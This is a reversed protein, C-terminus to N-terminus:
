PWFDALEGSSLLNFHGTTENKKVQCCAKLPDHELFLVSEHRDAYDFLQHKEEMSILPRVDYGMVYATGIHYTSPLLDACFILSHQQWHVVPIMMAETHGYTYKLDLYNRWTQNLEFHPNATVQKLVGAQELPELNEKHFSARERANPTLAWAWQKQSVWYVAKHFTPVLRGNERKVAGGVHDFHLHTILVDTVDGPHYGAQRVAEDVPIMNQPKYYSRFKESQKEGMGTDILVLDQETEILLCRLAWTCLNDEDPITMKEWLKKPVVGFMAGGDLKFFGTNISTLKM